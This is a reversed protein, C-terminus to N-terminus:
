GIVFREDFAQPVYELESLLRHNIEDYVSEVLTGTGRPYYRWAIPDKLKDLVKDLRMERIKTNTHRTAGLGIDLVSKVGQCRMRNRKVLFIAM